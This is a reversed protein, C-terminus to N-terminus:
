EAVEMEEDAIDVDEEDVGMQYAIASIMDVRDFDSPYRTTEVSFTIFYTM